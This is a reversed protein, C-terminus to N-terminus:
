FSLQRVRFPKGLRRACRSANQKNLFDLPDAVRFNRPFIKRVWGQNVEFRRSKTCMSKERKEVVVQM